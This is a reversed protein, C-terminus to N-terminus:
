ATSSKDETDLKAACVADRLRQAMEPPMSCAPLKRTIKITLEYTELYRVCPPCECLHNKIKDQYEAPLEGAIYDVLLEALERCKM